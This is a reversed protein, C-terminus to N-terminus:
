TGAAKSVFNTVKSAYSRIKFAFLVVLVGFLIAYIGIALLVALAGAEPRAILWVGFAVSVIGALILLWENNIVERLRIAAAIELVGPAHIM